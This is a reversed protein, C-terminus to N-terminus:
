ASAGVALARADRRAHPVLEDLQGDHRRRRLPGAPHQDGQRGDQARGIGSVPRSVRRVRADPLREVVQAARGRDAARAPRRRRSDRRRHRRGRRHRRDRRRNRADPRARPASRRDRELRACDRRPGPRRAADALATPTPNMGTRAARPLRDFAVSRPNAYWAALTLQHLADYAARKVSWRSKQLRVLFANADGVSADRWPGDIGAFAIRVPAFALLAFLTRSSTARSRRCAQSRPRSVRRRTESSATAGNPRTRPCHAM